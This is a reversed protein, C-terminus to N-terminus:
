SWVKRHCCIPLPLVNYLMRSRSSPLSFSSLERKSENEFLSYASYDSADSSRVWSSSTYDHNPWSEHDAKKKLFSYSYSYAFSFEGSDLPKQPYTRTWTGTASLGKAVNLDDCDTPMMFTFNETFHLTVQLFSLCAFILAKLSPDFLITLCSIPKWLM